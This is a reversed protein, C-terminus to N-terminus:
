CVCFRGEVVIFGGYSLGCFMVSFIGFYYRSYRYVFFKIRVKRNIKVLCICVFIWMGIFIGGFREEWVFFVFIM